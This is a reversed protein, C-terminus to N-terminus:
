GGPQEDAYLHTVSTEPLRPQQCDGRREPGAGVQRSQFLSEVMRPLNHIADKAPFFRSSLCPLPEDLHQALAEIFQHQGDNNVEPLLHFLVKRTV